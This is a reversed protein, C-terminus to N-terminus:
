KGSRLLTMTLENIAKTLDRMAEVTARSSDSVAQKVEGLKADLHEPRLDGLTPEKISTPASSKAKNQTYLYYIVVAFLAGVNALALINSVSM